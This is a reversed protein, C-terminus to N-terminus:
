MLRHETRLSFINIYCYTFCFKAKIKRQKRNSWLSVTILGAKFWSNLDSTGKGGWIKRKTLKIAVQKLNKRMKTVKKQKMMVRTTWFIIKRIVSM